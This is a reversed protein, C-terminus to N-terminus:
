RKRMLGPIGGYAGVVTGLLGMCLAFGLQFLVAHSCFLLPLFGLFTTGSAYALGSATAQPNELRRLESDIAFVAYDVSFGLVMILAILSMFTLPINLLFSVSLVMGLGCLFPFLALLSHLLSHYYLFLIVIILSISVPFMWQLEQTLIKPFISIIEGLSQAAPFAEKVKASEEGDKPFWLTLWKSERYLHQMYRPPPPEGLLRAKLQTCEITKLFPDFLKLEQPTLRQSLPHPGCQVKKWQLLNRNQVEFTPLYLSPSEFLVKSNQSFRNRKEASVSLSEKTDIEFLPPERFSKKYFWEAVEKTQATQFDFQRFDLRPSVIFPLVLGLAACVLSARYLWPAYTLSFPHATIALKKAIQHRLSFLILFGYAFGLISFYMVERLLPIQSNAIVLLCFVTTLFGFANSKWVHRSKYNFAAQLGYDIVMGIIGPGFSLTLGHINGNFFFITFAALTASGMVPLFLFALKGRKFYILFFLIFGLIFFGSLSVRGMDRLIQSKNELASAHPGFFVIRKCGPEQACMQRLSAFPEELEQAKEPAFGTQFPILIRGTEDDQFYGQKLPLALHLRSEAHSKLEEYSQLPDLRLLQFLSKPIPLSLKGLSETMREKFLKDSLPPSRGPLDRAWDEIVPLFTAPDPKCQVSYFVPNAKMADCLLGAIELKSQPDKSEIVAFNWWFAPFSKFLTLKEGFDKPFFKAESKDIWAAPSKLSLFVLIFLFVRM